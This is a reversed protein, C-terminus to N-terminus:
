YTKAHEKIIAQVLKSRQKNTRSKELRNIIVTIDNARWSKKGDFKITFGRKAYKLFRQFIKRFVNVIIDESLSLNWKTLDITLLRDKQLEYLRKFPNALSGSVNGMAGLIQVINDSVLATKDILSSCNHIRILKGDWSNKVIDLDFSHVCAAPQIINEKLEIVQITSLPSVHQERRCNYWDKIAQMNESAHLIIYHDNTDGREYFNQYSLDGLLSQIMDVGQRKGFIDIDFRDWKVSLLAQLVISGSIVFPWPTPLMTIEKVLASHGTARMLGYLNDKFRNIIWNNTEKNNLQRHITTLNLIEVPSLYEAIPYFVHLARWISRNSDFLEPRSLPILVKKSLYEQRIIAALDGTKPLPKPKSQLETM